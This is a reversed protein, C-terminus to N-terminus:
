SFVTQIWTYLRCVFLKLRRFWRRSARSSVLMHHEKLLQSLCCSRQLAVHSMIDYIVVSVHLVVFNRTENNVVIDEDLQKLWQLHYEPDSLLDCKFRVTDGVHVTQNRPGDMIVPPHQLRAVCLFMM